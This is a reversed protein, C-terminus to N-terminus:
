KRSRGRFKIIVNQAAEPVRRSIIDLPKENPSDKEAIGTLIKGGTRLPERGVTKAGRWLIPRVVRWLVGLFSGIGYCRQHFLPVAYVPGIANGKRAVRRIFTTYCYPICLWSIYSTPLLVAQKFRMRSHPDTSFTPSIELADQLEQFHSAQGETDLDRDTHEYNNTKRCAPLLYKRFQTSM